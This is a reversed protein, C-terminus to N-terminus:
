KGAAPEEFAVQVYDFGAAVAMTRIDAIDQMPVRQDARILLAPVKHEKAREQLWQGLKTFNIMGEDVLAVGSRPVSIFVNTTVAGAKAGAVTPLVFGGALGVGLGPALVFRSGFFLFFLVLLVGNIFYFADFNRPHRRVRSALDLPSTIM